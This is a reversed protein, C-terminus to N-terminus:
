QFSAFRVGILREIISYVYHNDQKGCNVKMSLFFIWAKGTKCLTCMSLHVYYYKTEPNSGMKANETKKIFHAAPSSIGGTILHIFSHTLSHICLSLDLKPWSFCLNFNIQNACSLNM